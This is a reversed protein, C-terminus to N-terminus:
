CLGLLAILILNALLLRKLFVLALLLGLRLTGALGFCVEYTSQDIVIIL